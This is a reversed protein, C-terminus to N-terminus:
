EEIQAEIQQRGYQERYWGNQLVLYDHTGEEIVAGDDMVIIWDAHQVASLRHTTILTTRGARQNRIGNVIKTETKADVASLADDLILIEPNAILARAISVRQKQGGSLTVGKEGVLTQIGDSLYKMEKSFSALELANQLEDETANPGGMLINERITKSFLIPQQPVYGLWSQINDTNLQELPIDSISITGQGLPYERLLQRLLTTKGSGTKGVIGLTHGQKLTFSVKTLNDVSSSPYRFSVQDFIIKEPRKLESHGEHDVVDPKYGLTENVRDLSANGRQM